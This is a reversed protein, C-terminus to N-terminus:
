YWDSGLEIDDFDDFQSFLNKLDNRREIKRRTSFKRDNGSLNEWDAAHFERSPKRMDDSSLDFDSEFDDYYDFDDFSESEFNDTKPRRKTGM